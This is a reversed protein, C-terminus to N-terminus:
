EDNIFSELLNSNREPLLLAQKLTRLKFLFIKLETSRSVFLLIIVFGFTSM